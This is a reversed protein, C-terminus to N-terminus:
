WGAAANAAAVPVRGRLPHVWPGYLHTLIGVLLRPVTKQGSHEFAGLDRVNHRLDLLSEDESVRDSYHRPNFVVSVDVVTPAPPLWCCM